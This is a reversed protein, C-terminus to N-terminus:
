PTTAQTLATDLVSGEEQWLVRPMPGNRNLLAKLRYRTHERALSGDLQFYKSSVSYPVAPPTSGAPMRAKFDAIDKFYNNIRQQALVTLAAQGVDPLLAQLLPLVATNVNIDTRTPLVTVLPALKQLVEPSYGGVLKLSAVRVLRHSNDPPMTVPSSAEHKDDTDKSLPIGLWDLLHDALNEPLEQTQLLRRYLKVQAADAGGQQRILNTLNFKGQEDSLQGQFRMGDAETPPLPQAWIESLADVSSNQADFRLIDRAWDIGAHALQRVQARQIDSDVRRWWLGQQWLVLTSATAALAVLLLAMVVAMGSQKNMAAGM